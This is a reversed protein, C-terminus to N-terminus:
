HYVVICCVFWYDTTYFQAALLGIILPMCVVWSCVSVLKHEVMKTTIRPNWGLRGPQFKGNLCVVFNFEDRYSLWARATYFAPSALNGLDRNKRGLDQSRPHFNEWIFVRAQTVPAFSKLCFWSGYDPFSVTLRPIRAYGHYPVIKRSKLPDWVQVSLREFIRGTGGTGHLRLTFGDLNKGHLIQESGHLRSKGSWIAGDQHWIDARIWACTPPVRTSITM